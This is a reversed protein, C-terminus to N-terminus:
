GLVDTLVGCHETITRARSSYDETFHPPLDTVIPAPRTAADKIIRRYDNAAAEGTHNESWYAHGARALNARANADEALRRMAQALSSEEDLLDVRIAVPEVQRPLPREHPALTPIDVLHALDSVVTPRAAALCHLWSASTEQATPWRLCLCVDSAALYGGISEEEVYGIVHVRDGVNQATLEDQLSAYDSADGVLLLRVDLGERVVAAFARLIPGIRKEATLKGFAAFAISKEGLGLRARMTERAARSIEVPSKGLRIAEIPTDPFLERLETAVRQNHVAVLRATRMVVRLMSWFYYIPGGLGEVAYEVFGPSADPHDYRFECRYDDFRQHQLLQRARAHHLKPDHVVVLGPYRTLYAWIYDHHANNGLQYVVLNYPDRKHKWVFDHADFVRDAREAPPSEVFRDIAFDRDLQTLLEANDAAIGSRVPPLPSFWALRLRQDNTM